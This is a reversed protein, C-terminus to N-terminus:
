RRRQNEGRGGRAKAGPRRSKDRRSRRVAGRARLRRGMSGLVNRRRTPGLGIRLRRIRLRDRLLRRGSGSRVDGRQRDRLRRNRTRRRTRRNQPRNTKRRLLRNTQHGVSLRVDVDRSKRGLEGGRFKRGDQFEVSMRVGRSRPGTGLRRLGVDVNRPKRRPQSGRFERGEQFEISVTPGRLRAGSRLWGWRVAVDTSIRGLVGVRLLRGELSERRLGM